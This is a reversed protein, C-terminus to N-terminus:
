ATKQSILVDIDLEILLELSQNHRTKVVKMNGMHGM